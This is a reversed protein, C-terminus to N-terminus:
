KRYLRDLSWVETLHHNPGFTKELVKLSRQWLEEAEQMKGQEFYVLGLIEAVPLTSRDYNPRLAEAYDQQLRELMEKAEQLRGQKFYIFGLSCLIGLTSEDNPDSSKERTRIVQQYLEEAEQFKGQLIYLNWLNDVAAHTSWFSPGLAKKYGQVSRQYMEGAKALKNQNSYLNGVAHCARAMDYEKMTDLTERSFREAHQLLRRQTVWWKRSRRDPVHRAICEIAFRALEASREENLVHIMWSYVCSHVSYGRSEILEHVSSDVEVLGYDMLERITHSFSLEDKTVEHIWGIEHHKHSQLLELWIDQNDFYAWLRLLSAAHQNQQQIQNFSVQWTSYLTRDEYSPLVPSSTQLRTWSDKYLRLYSEFTTSTQELYAGATALALPLGDLEKALNVAGPDNSLEERKSTTSLIELSQELSQIKVMRITHGVKVRSSRTTIVVSGQYAEPLYEQIDVAASDANDPLKPNDYNDYVLLWRTNNPQSLWAKVADVTESVNGGNKVRSVHSVSPHQRKIQQSIRIFSQKLSNEDKINLWFIASYNDKHRKTYEIALQTKGMGGLGHLVVTRRSGDSRLTKHMEILEQERAVFHDIEPVGYLSFPVSFEEYQSGKQARNIEERLRKLASEEGEGYILAMHIEFIGLISYAKDEPVTTKRRDAWTMREPTTFHSLPWRRLALAPIGTADCILSELSEKDGVKTGERVYFDVTKPAVLEQLTWGRTFWRSRKFQLRWHENNHQDSGQTTPILVDELYVYCKTADRYWRFMSNISETLEASSSKDICCTDVWFHHLGDRSAQEGCFRIKEYGIKHQGIGQELDKYTVEEPGWTHSLIAYPPINTGSPYDTLSFLGTSSCTLLRM